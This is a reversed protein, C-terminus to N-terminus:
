EDFTIQKLADWRPDTQERSCACSEKNLDTGCHPCLGKCDESCLPKASVSLVLIDVADPTIDLAEQRPDILRVEGDEEGDLQTRDTTHFTDVEGSVAALFGGGCRCCVLGVKGSLFVRVLYGDELVTVRADVNLPEPIEAIQSM